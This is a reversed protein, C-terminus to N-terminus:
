LRTAPLFSATRRLSTRPIWKYESLLEKQFNADFDHRQELIEFTPPRSGNTAAPDASNIIGIQVHHTTSWQNADPYQSMFDAEVLDNRTWIIDDTGQYNKDACLVPLTDDVKKYQTPRHGTKTIILRFIQGDKM